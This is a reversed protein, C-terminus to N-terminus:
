CVSTAVTVHYKSTFIWNKVQMHANSQILIFIAHTPARAVVEKMTKIEEPTRQEVYFYLYVKRLCITIM